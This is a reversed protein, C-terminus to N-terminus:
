NEKKMFLRFYYRNEKPDHVTQLEDIQNVDVGKMTLFADISGIGLLENHTYPVEKTEVKNM